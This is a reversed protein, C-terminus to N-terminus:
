GQRLRLRLWELLDLARQKVRPYTRRLREAIKEAIAWAPMSRAWDHLRDRVAILWDMFFAFWRITRLKAEGAAYIREVVVLSVLYALGLVVTGIFWHGTGILALGYIKAPDAIMSSLALLALIGYPPLGAVLKQLRLVLPFSVVWRVLPQFIPTFIDDLVVYLGVLAEAFRLLVRRWVTDEDQQPMPM